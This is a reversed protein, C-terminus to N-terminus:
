GVIGKIIKILAFDVLGLYFAIVLVLVIVVATSALLEKRTPWKVKKLEVKAERLFQAAVGFVRFISSGEGTSKDVGKKQTSKTTEQTVSKTQPSKANPEAVQKTKAGSSRKRPSKKKKTKQNRKAM